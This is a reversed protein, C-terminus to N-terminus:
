PLLSAWHKGSARVFNRTACAAPATKTWSPMFRREIELADQREQEEKAHMVSAMFEDTYTHTHTHARTAGAAEYQAVRGSEAEALAHLQQADVGDLAQLTQAHPGM